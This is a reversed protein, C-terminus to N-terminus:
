GKEWSIFYSEDGQKQLVSTLSYKIIDLCISRQKNDCCEYNGINYYICSKCGTNGNINITGNIKEYNNFAIFKNQEIAFVKINNIDIVPGTSNINMNILIEKM